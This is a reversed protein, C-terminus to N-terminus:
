RDLEWRAGRAGADVHLDAIRSGKPLKFVLYGTATGGPKIPSDLSLLRGRKIGTLPEVLHVARTDDVVRARLTLLSDLAQDGRNSIMLRVGWLQDGNLPRESAKLPQVAVARSGTVELDPRTASGRLLFQAGPGGVPGSTAPRLEDSVQHVLGTHWVGLVSLLLGLVVGFAPALRSGHFVRRWLVRSAPAPMAEPARREPLPGEMSAARKAEQLSQQIYQSTAHIGDPSLIEPRGALLPAINGSSCVLVDEVWGFVPEARDFCLVPHVIQSVLGPLEGNVAKAAARATGAAWDCRRAGHWLVGDRVEIEGPWALTHLVFVGGPGVLVHDIDALQRDPWHLDRFVRWDLHPLATLALTVDAPGAPEELEDLDEREPLDTPEAPGAQVASEHPVVPGSLGAPEVSGTPADLETVEPWLDDALELEDYRQASEGAM